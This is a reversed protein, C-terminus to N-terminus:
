VGPTCGESGQSGGGTAWVCGSGIKGESTVPARRALQWGVWFTSDRRAEPQLAFKIPMKRIVPQTPSLATSISTATVLLAQIADIEHLDQLFPVGQCLSTDAHCGDCLTNGECPEGELELGRGTLEALVQDIAAGDGAPAPSPERTV